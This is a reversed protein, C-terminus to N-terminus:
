LERIVQTNSIDRNRDQPHILAGPSPCQNQNMKNRHCLGQELSKSLRRRACRLEPRLAADADPPAFTEERKVISFILGEQGPNVSFSLEVLCGAQIEFTNSASFASFRM